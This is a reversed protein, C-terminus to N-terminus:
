LIKRLERKFGTINSSSSSITKVQKRLETSLTQMQRPILDKQSVQDTIENQAHSIFVYVAILTVSMGILMLANRKSSLKRKMFMKLVLVYNQISDCISQKRKYFGKIPKIINLLQQRQNNKAFAPAKNNFSIRRNDCKRILEQICTPTSSSLFDSLSGPLTDQGTFVVVGHRSLTFSVFVTFDLQFIQYYEATNILNSNSKNPIWM